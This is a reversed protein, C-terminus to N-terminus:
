PQNLLYQYINLEEDEKKYDPYEKKILEFFKQNHSMEILHCLEHYVIYSILNDPLYQLNKSLTINRKSSCSGWKRTTNRYQVKNVKVGLKKQYKDLHYNCIKKFEDSTRNILHKNKSLKKLDKEHEEWKIINDYIWNEKKLICEKITKDYRTPLKLLLKGRYLKYRIYKLKKYEVAYKLTKDKIRMENLTYNKQNIKDISCEEEIIKRYIWNEKKLIHKEVNKDLDQPIIMKLHRGSLEYRLLKVNRYDYEYTIQIDKIKIKLMKDM